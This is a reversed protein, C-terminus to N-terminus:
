GAGVGRQLFTFISYLNQLFMNIITKSWAFTSFFYYLVAPMAFKKWTQWLILSLIM